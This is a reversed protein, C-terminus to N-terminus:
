SRGFLGDVSDQLDFVDSVAYLGVPKGLRSTDPPTEVCAKLKAENARVVIAYRNALWTEDNFGMVQRGLAKAAGPNPAKFVLARTAEDGFLRAKEAMMHHEATPYRQGEIEFPAGYWQSFCSATIGHKGPQHGWFNVFKLKAGANYRRRLDEIYRTDTM